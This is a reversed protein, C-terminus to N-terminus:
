AAIRHAALFDLLAARCEGPKEIQLLHGTGAVAVYDIGNEQALAQNAAGTPPGHRLAPDAGFLKTPGAFEAGQPWLDLTVAEEYVRAELEPACSLVWGGAAEDRRLVARAMLAHAGEVWSAAARSARFEQELQAPDDYRARRGRAWEALRREFKLMPDYLRHGVPPFNPPDFLALADWRWGIEIAHKMAARGSMSHFVGVSPRRGWAREVGDLVRDLDRAMQAYNHHAPDSPPNQGHNRFDFVVLEFDRQLPEWFPFYADAAFGNGHSIIIRAGALNGHRRLRLRAGDEMPLDIIAHPVPLEFGM